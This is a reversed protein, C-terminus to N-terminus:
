WVTIEYQMTAWKTGWPPQNGPDALEAAVHQCVFQTIGAVTPRVSQHDSAQTAADLFAVGGDSKVHTLVNRRPVFDGRSWHRSMADFRYPPMHRRSDSVLQGISAALNPPERPSLSEALGAGRWHTASGLIEPWPTPRPLAGVHEILGNYAAAIDADTPPVAPVVPLEVDFDGIVKGLTWAVVVVALGEPLIGLQIGRDASYRSRVRERLEVSFEDSPDKLILAALLWSALHAHEKDLLRMQEDASVSLWFARYMDSAEQLWAMELGCQDLRDEITDAWATKDQLLAYLEAYVLPSLECSVDM